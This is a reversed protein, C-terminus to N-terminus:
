AYPNMRLNITTVQLAVRMMGNKNCQRFFRNKANDHNHFLCNNKSNQSLIWLFAGFYSYSISTSFYHYNNLGWVLFGGLQNFFIYM